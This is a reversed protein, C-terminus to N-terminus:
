KENWPAGEKRDASGRGIVFHERVDSLPIEISSVRQKINESSEERKCTSELVWVSLSPDHEGREEREELERM